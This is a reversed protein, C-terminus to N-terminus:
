GDVEIIETYEFENSSRKVLPYTMGKLEITDEECDPKPSIYVLIYHRDLYNAMETAVEGRWQTKTVLVVLQNALQPISKAVQRRYIEDLNGFPSDMVVPLQSSDPGMLTNKQSWERVMDIIAGIFSLSLIQNEGTSAAVPVAIGSTNEILNLEYNSSLRPIYPTFSISNFIEQVRKQLSVRFQNELRSKVEILRAIAEETVKIRRQVLAQKEAKIEQKNVQKNIIQIEKLINELQIKNEGQNLILQRINQEIIDLGKQLEQIEENPYKRLKNKLDDLQNEVESLQSRGQNINAQYQAVEQWFQNTQGDIQNVQTELRIASEEVEAIGAKNMWARVQNYYESGETLETGCICKKRALLQQVFQKKIGSPLQGKERLQEILNKFKQAVEELFVPYSKSSIAKKLQSHARALSLRLEKQKLELQQKLKQLSEAGSMELLQNAIARKEEEQKSLREVLLQEQRQLKELSDELNTRQKLLKKIELDGLNKLENALTKKANKLHNIARELLKVGILEQTDEAIKHRDKSRFIHEIHEGDFFFYQHLSQPLIKEIIDEPQELPHIWRGDDGAVLMFLQSETSHIKDHQDRFAYCRRKVQYRKHDHEFNIEVYCEVSTGVKAETIARKNVLLEAGAFAPTFKHYLVWTFANLLTTKGAGNNGHVITTNREGKSFEIVPTRGYFQRFNCLQISLLKM